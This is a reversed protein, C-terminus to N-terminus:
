LLSIVLDAHDDALDCQQGPQGIEYNGWPFMWMRGYSHMTLLADVTSAIRAYENAVAQTEPESNGTAGCYTDACQLHSVGDATFFYTFRYSM